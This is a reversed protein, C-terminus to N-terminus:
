RAGRNGWAGGERDYPRPDRPSPRSTTTAPAADIDADIIGEAHEAKHLAPEHLDGKAEAWGLRSHDQFRGRNPAQRYGLERKLRDQGFGMAHCGVVVGERGGGSAPEGEDVRDEVTQRRGQTLGFSRQVSQAVEDLPGIM